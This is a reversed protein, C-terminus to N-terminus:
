GKWKIALLIFTSVSCVTTISLLIILFTVLEDSM